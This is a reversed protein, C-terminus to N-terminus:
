NNDQISGNTIYKNESLFLIDANKLKVPLSKFYGLTELNSMNTAYNFKLAKTFTDLKSESPAQLSTDVVTTRQSPYALKMELQTNQKMLTVEVYENHWKGTKTWAATVDNGAGRVMVNFMNSLVNTEKDLMLIDKNKIDSLGQEPSLKELVSTKNAPFSSDKSTLIWVTGDTNFVIKFYDIIDTTSTVDFFASTATNRATDDTSFWYKSDSQLEINNNFKNTKSFGHSEDYLEDTSGSVAISGSDENARSSINDTNDSLWMKLYSNKLNDTVENVLEAHNNKVTAESCDESYNVYASNDYSGSQVMQVTTINVKQSDSGTGVSYISGGKLTNNVTNWGKDGNTLINDISFMNSSIILNCPQIYSIAAYSNCAFTRTAGQKTVNTTNHTIKGNTSDMVYYQMKYIPQVAKIVSSQVSGEIGTNNQKINSINKLQNTNLTEVNTKISDKALSRTEIEANSIRENEDEANSSTWPDLSGSDATLGIITESTDSHTTSIDSDVLDTEIDSSPTSVNGQSTGYKSLILSDTSDVANKYTIGSNSITDAIQVDAIGGTIESGTEDSQTRAVGFHTGNFGVGVKYSKLTNRIDKQQISWYGLATDIWRGQNHLDVSVGLWLENDTLEDGGLPNNNFTYSKLRSDNISNNASGIVSLQSETLNVDANEPFTESTDDDIYKVLRIVTVVEDDDLVVFHKPGKGQQSQEAGIAEYMGTLQSYSKNAGYATYMNFVDAYSINKYVSWDAVQYGSGHALIQKYSNDTFEYKGNNHNKMYNFWPKRCEDTHNDCKINIIKDEKEDEIEIISPVIYQPFSKVSILKGTKANRIEYVKQCQNNGGNRSYNIEGPFGCSPVASESSSTYDNTHWTINDAAPALISLGYTTIRGDSKHTLDGEGDFLPAIDGNSKTYRAGESFCINPYEENCEWVGDQGIGDCYVANCSWHPVDYYSPVGLANTVISGAEYDGVSQGGRNDYLWRATGYIYKFHQSIPEEETVVQTWSYDIRDIHNPAIGGNLDNDYLEDIFQEALDLNTVLTGDTLYNRASIIDYLMQTDYNDIKSASVYVDEAIGDNNIDFELVYPKIEHEDRYNTTYDYFYDYVRKWFEKEYTVTRTGVNPAVQDGDDDVSSVIQIPEVCFLVNSDTKLRTLAASGWYHDVIDALNAAGNKMLWSNIENTDTTCNFEIRAFYKTEGDIVFPYNDSFYISNATGFATEYSIDDSNGVNNYMEYGGNAGLFDICDFTSDGYTGQVFSNDLKNVIYCRVGEGYIEGINKSTDYKGSGRTTSGTNSGSVSFAGDPDAYVNSIPASTLIMLASLILASSKKLLQKLKM